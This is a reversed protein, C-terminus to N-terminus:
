RPHFQVRRTENGRLLTLQLARDDPLEALLEALAVTSLAPRGNMEVILDGQTV